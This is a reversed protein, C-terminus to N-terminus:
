AGMMAVRDLALRLHDVRIPDVETQTGARRHHRELGLAELRVSQGLEFLSQLHLKDTLVQPVVSGPEPHEHQAEVPLGAPPPFGRLAAAPAGSLNECM